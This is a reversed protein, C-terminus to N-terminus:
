DVVLWQNAMWLGVVPGQLSEGFLKNEDNKLLIQLYQSM